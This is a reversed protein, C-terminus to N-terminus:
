LLNTVQDLRKSERNFSASSMQRNFLQKPTPGTSTDDEVFVRGEGGVARGSEMQHGSVLGKTSGYIDNNMEGEDFSPRRWTLLVQFCM